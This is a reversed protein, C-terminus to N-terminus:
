TPPSRVSWSPEAGQNSGPATGCGASRTMVGDFARLASWRRRFSLVSRM